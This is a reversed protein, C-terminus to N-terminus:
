LFADCPAKCEGAQAAVAGRSGILWCVGTWVDYSVFWGLVVHGWVRMM